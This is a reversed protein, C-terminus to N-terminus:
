VSFNYADILFQRDETFRPTEEDIFFVGREYELGANVGMGYAVGTVKRKHVLTGMKLVTPLANWDQGRELLMQLQDGRRRSNLERQSFVSQALASVSNKMCDNQRWVLNNLVEDLSPLFMVRSDFYAPKVWEEGFQEQIAHNFAVSCMAASISCLKQVRNGFWPQSGEKEGKRLVLTIEDSQTYGMICTNIGECLELTTKQMARVMRNDFPKRLKVRKTWTHFCSGDLRLVTYYDQCRDLELAADEYDKMRDGLTDKKTGDNM